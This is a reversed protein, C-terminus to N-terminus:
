GGHVTLQRSARNWWARALWWLGAAWAAQVAVARLADGGSLSGVFVLAPTSAMGAFPLVDAVARLWDPFFAFPVLAGSFLTVLAIRAMQIGVYNQTWFILLGSAYVIGFRLPLVLLASVVFLAAAAPEPWPVGGFVLGSLVVVVLALGAEYGAFGVVEAFRARQYDVPRVLDMAVDGQLIRYAMHYDTWGSVVSGAVFGVLLYAKMHPWDFGATARGDSLIAQWLYLMALMGFASGLLGFLLSSQYALVSRLAARALARYVRMEAFVSKITRSV